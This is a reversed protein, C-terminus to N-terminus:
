SWQPSVVKFTYEETNDGVLLIQTSIDWSIYRQNLFLFFFTETNCWLAYYFSVPCLFQNFDYLVKMALYLNTGKQM